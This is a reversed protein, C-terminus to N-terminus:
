MPLTAHDSLGVAFVPIAKSNNVELEITKDDPVVNLCVLLCDLGPLKQSAIWNSSNRALSLSHFEAMGFESCRILFKVQSGAPMFM